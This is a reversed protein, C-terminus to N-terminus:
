WEYVKRTGDAVYWIEPDVEKELKSAHRVNMSEAKSNHEWKGQGLYKCNGFCYDCVAGLIHPPHRAARLKDFNKGCCKCEEYMVECNNSVVDGM